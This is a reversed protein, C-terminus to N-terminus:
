VFIALVGLVIAAIGLPVQWVALTEYVEEAKEKAGCMEATLQRLEATRAEVEEELHDRHRRLQEDREQIQGLMENFGDILLGVEDNGSKEARIQFTKETSVTKAVQALNLLPTSILRQLISSMLFALLLAALAVVAGIKVHFIWQDKFEDLDSEAYITGIAENDLVVRRSVIMRDRQFLAMDKQPSPPFAANEGNSTYQAFLKGSADFIAAQRVHPDARFVKVAEGAFKADRFSLAATSNNAVTETMMSLSRIMNRRTTVLDFVLLAAFAALLAASTTLMVILNLKRKISLDRISIM